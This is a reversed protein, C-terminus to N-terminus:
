PTMREQVESLMVSVSPAASIAATAATSTSTVPAIVASNPGTYGYKAKIETLHQSYETFVVDFVSYPNSKM